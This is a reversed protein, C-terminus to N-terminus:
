LFFRINKGNGELSAKRGGKNQFPWFLEFVFEYRGFFWRLNKGKEARLRLNLPRFQGGM